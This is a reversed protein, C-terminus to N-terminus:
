GPKKKLVLPMAAGQVFTGQWGNDMWTASYSANIIASSFDLKEATISFSDVPIGFSQQKPSDLTVHYGEGSVAINLVLPLRASNNIILDGYWSGENALLKLQQENLKTLYLERAKGQTFKGQLQGKVLTGSFSANLKDDQFQVSQGDVSFQSPRYDFMGQNPSDLTLSYGDPMNSINIGITLAAQPAMQLQGRWKGSLQEASVASAGIIMLLVTFWALAQQM